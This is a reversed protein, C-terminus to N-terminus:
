GTGGVVHDAPVTMQVKFNGFTLAFEGRGTFQHNQWGQFDSYVCLRPYWQAMTFLYNGDEPFFEYGGRGGGAIRDTIKYKWNVNFIFQEGSKLPTPIEVRMMTKNITYKLDKGAADTIKLIKVGNENDIDSEVANDLTKTTTIEPLQTSSQYNANTLNNHENEDLQLWIYTLVDPSNNFYTVKEAGTLNLQQEDLSCKIDYDARQQWYKVGPAGSATRQENPTSLITGLQEFKNGHNSGPNNQINQAFSVQFSSGLLFLATLTKNM